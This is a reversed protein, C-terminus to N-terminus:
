VLVLCSLYYVVEYVTSLHDESMVLQDMLVTSVLTIYWNPQSIHITISFLYNDPVPLTIDPWALNPAVANGANNRQAVAHSSKIKSKFVPLICM